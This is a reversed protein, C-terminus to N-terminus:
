RAKRWRYIVIFSRISRALKKYWPLKRVVVLAFCDKVEQLTEKSQEKEEEKNLCNEETKIKEGKQLIKHIYKEKIEKFGKIKRM